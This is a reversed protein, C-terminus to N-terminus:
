KTARFRRRDELLEAPTAELATAEGVALVMRVRRSAPTVGSEHSSLWEQAAHRLPDVDPLVGLHMLLRRSQPSFLASDPVQVGLDSWVCKM